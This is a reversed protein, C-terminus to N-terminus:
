RHVRYRLATRAGIEQVNIKELEVSGLGPRGFLRLGSGLLVPMVDVRLEDALGARLLETVVAPGGVVTVAKDGAASTAQAVASELGDTVFTFSLRDDQKPPPSPPQSTLVFIPVQFEYNGVYSDPDAMQFTRRGMLVAGTEEVMAEMYAGGQLDALDPYLRAISGHEDAVYGDLSMTMGVIVKGTPESAGAAQASM